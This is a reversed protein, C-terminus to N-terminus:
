NEKGEAGLSYKEQWFLDKEVSFYLLKNKDDCFIVM